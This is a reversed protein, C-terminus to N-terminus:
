KFNFRVDDVYVDRSVTIQDTITYCLVKGDKKNIVEMVSVTQPGIEERIKVNLLNYNTVIQTHPVSLQVSGVLTSCGRDQFKVRYGIVEGTSNNTILKVYEVEALEKTMAKKVHSPLSGYEDPKIIQHGPKLAQDIMQQNSIQNELTGQNTTSM